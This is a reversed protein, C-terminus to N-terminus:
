ETASKGKNLALSGTGGFGGFIFSTLFLFLASVVVPYDHLGLTRLGMLFVILINVYIIWQVIERLGRRLEGARDTVTLYADWRNGSILTRGLILHAMVIVSAGLVYTLM